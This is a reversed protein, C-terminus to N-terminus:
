YSRFSLEQYINFGFQYINQIISIVLLIIFIILCMGVLILVLTLLAKGFSYNHTSILSAFLLFLMWVIILTEFFNYFVVESVTLVNSLVLMPIGFVVYPKLAYCTAIIIDRMNGKGDMLTTFCWNSIVWFVLPLVIMLVGYLVNVDERAVGTVVYGGFQLRLAYIIVFMAAILMASGMNGRKEHKLDWFGDFPHKMVYSGYCYGKYVENNSIRAFIASRKFVKVVVFIAIVAVLIVVILTGFNERLFDDRWSSFAQSYQDHERIEMLDSMATDYSKNRMEIRALSVSALVYGSATSSIEQWLMKSEDYKGSSYLQLANKVKISFETEKLVTLTGKFSDTILLTGGDDGQIYEIASAAYYTGHQVGNAGFAYLMYGEENYAYIKGQKSDLIYVIDGGLKESICLCSDTFYPKYTKDSKKLYGLDGFFGSKPEVMVDDGDNNLKAASVSNSTQSTVYLFGNSDATVSNYETPVYSEMKSLQEKTAFKRWIIEFFNPEVKPAGVFSQFDGNEDLSVLGQNIGSAVVYIKGTSDVTLKTPLYEFDEGLAKIVPKELINVPIYNGASIDFVVIRHNKTDSVYLNKENAWLGQPANFSQMEGSYEFESIEYLFNLEKDTAIVHNNGTDCIFVTGENNYFVDSLNSFAKGALKDGTITNETYFPAPIKMPENSSNYVYSDYPIDTQYEVTASVSTINLALVIFLLLCSIIKKM